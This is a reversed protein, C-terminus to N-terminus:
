ATGTLAKAWWRDFDHVCREGAQYRGPRHGRSGLGKQANECLTWDQRNTTDWFDIADSADFGPQAVQDPSCFWETEIRVSGPGTPWLYHTMVYDPALSYLLNPYLNFYYVLDKDADCLGPLPTRASTGTATASTFGSKLRMPGGTFHKGRHDFGALGAEVSIRHLQPHALACHYCENYNECVLKWNANVDYDHRGVRVLGTTDFRTMDPFDAYVQAVPPADDDLNVFLLGEFVELRVARLPWDNRDFGETDQMQPAAKLRGDLGYRWAHYPCGFDKCRGGPGDVLRSGRHRCVNHFARPTATEDAVLIVSDSGLDVVFYDGTEALRSVHGACLWSRSFIREMELDFVGADHYYRGPPTLAHEFPCDTGKLDTLEVPGAM